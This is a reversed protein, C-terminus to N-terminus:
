FGIAPEGEGGAPSDAPLVRAYQDPDVMTINGAPLWRVIYPPHGDVGLANLIIAVAGSGALLRDGAKAKM